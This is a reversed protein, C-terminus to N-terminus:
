DVTSSSLCELGCGLADGSCRAQGAASAMKHLAPMTNGALTLDKHMIRSLRYAGCLVQLCVADVATVQECNVVLRNVRELSHVLSARLSLAAHPTLNGKLTLVGLTGGDTVLLKIM